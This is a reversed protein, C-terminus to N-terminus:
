GRDDEKRVPAFFFDYVVLALTVAIVGGLDWRPVFWVLIALFGALIALALLAMTREMM